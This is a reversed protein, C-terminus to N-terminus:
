VSPPGGFNDGDYNDRDLANVVPNMRSGDNNMDSTDIYSDALPLHKNSNTDNVNLNAEVSMDNNNQLNSTAKSAKDPKMTNTIDALSKTVM